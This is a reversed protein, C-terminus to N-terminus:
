KLQEMGCLPLARLGRVAFSNPPRDAAIQYKNLGGGTAYYSTTQGKVM